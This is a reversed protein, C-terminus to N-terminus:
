IRNKSKSKNKKRNIYIGKIDQALTIKQNDINYCSFGMKSGTPVIKIKDQNRLYNIIQSHNVTYQINGKLVHLCYRDFETRQNQNTKKVTEIYKNEVLHM